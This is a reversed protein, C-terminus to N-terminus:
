HVDKEKHVPGQMLIMTLEAVVQACESLAKRCSLTLMRLEAVDAKLTLIEAELDIMLRRGCVPAAGNLSM